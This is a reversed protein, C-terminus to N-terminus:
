KTSPVRAQPRPLRNPLPSRPITNDRRGSKAQAPKDKAVLHRDLLDYYEPEVGKVQVRTLGRGPRTKFERRKRYGKIKVKGLKKASVEFYVHPNDADYWHRSLTVSRHRYM